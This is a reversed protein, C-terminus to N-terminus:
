NINTVVKTEQTINHIPSEADVFRFLYLTLYVPAHIFAALNFM